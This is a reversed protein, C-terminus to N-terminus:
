ATVAQVPDGFAQHAASLERIRRHKQIEQIAPDSFSTQIKGLYEPSGSTRFNGVFLGILAHDRITYQMKGARM